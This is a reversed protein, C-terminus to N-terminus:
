SAAKKQTERLIWLYLVKGDIHKVEDPPWEPGMDYDHSVIRAGVRLQRWLTPRLAINIEPLLYLMVVSAESFDAGFIDGVVFKVKDAVGARRMNINAEQIRAPDLDIGVGRAGRSRAAAIVIRGDGCGLDYVLDDSRVRAMELMKEVVGEPTAVYPVALPPPAACGIAFLSTWALLRGAASM